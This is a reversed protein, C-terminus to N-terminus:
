MLSFINVLQPCHSSCTVSSSFIGWTVVSKDPNMVLAKNTHGYRLHPKSRMDFSDHNLFLDHSEKKINPKLVNFLVLIKSLGEGHKVVRAIPYRGLHEEM